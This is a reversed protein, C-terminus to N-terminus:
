NFNETYINSLFCLVFRLWVEAAASPTRLIIPLLKLDLNFSVKKFDFFIISTSLVM